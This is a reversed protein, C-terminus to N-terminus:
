KNQPKLLVIVIIAALFTGISNFIVDYVDAKRTLTFAQQFLEIVVGYLMSILVVWVVNVITFKKKKSAVYIMWLFSFGFYFIAHVLKDFNSIKVNISPLNQNSVLSFITILITWAIALLLWKNKHVLLAKTIM